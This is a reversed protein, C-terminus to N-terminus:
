RAYMDIERVRAGGATAPKYPYHMQRSNEGRKLMIFGCEVAEKVWERATDRGVGFREKLKATLVNQTIGPLEVCLALVHQVGTESRHTVRDRRGYTMHKTTEDFELTTAPIGTVGGRGNEVALFRTGGDSTMVWRADAWDDIATAGRAREKGEEQQARGTHAIIFTAAVGAAVKIDDVGALLDLMAPNDNEDVGTMRALRALSDIVWVAVGRSQLWDVTWAKGVPTLINVNYGVLSAVHLRDPRNYRAPRIYNDTLDMVDMECNWLGVNHGGPDVAFEGLFPTGDCLSRAVNCVMMLTKGTKYQATLSVNHRAGAVREILFPKAAAPVNVLQQATMSVGVPPAVFRRQAEVLDATHRIQRRRLEKEVAEDIGDDGGGNGDVKSLVRDVDKHVNYGGHEDDNKDVAPPFTDMLSHVQGPTLGENMLERTVAWVAEHRSGYREVAEESDMSVWRRHKRRLASVDEKTWAGNDRRSRWTPLALLKDPNVAKGHGSRRGVVVPTAKYNVSGPLRLLSNDAHKNDAHLYDRLGRNLREHMEGSVERTLRVYVHANDGSGSAVVYTGLQRIRRQVVRVRSAPVGDMDVDAWLWRLGRVDGKRRGGGSARLAPCVFLNADHHVRAWGLLKRRDDPWLFSSEQWSNGQDKYAVAVYGPEDAFLLDLYEATESAM